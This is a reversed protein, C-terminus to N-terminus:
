AQVSDDPTGVQHLNAQVGLIDKYLDGCCVQGLSLYHEVCDAGHETLVAARGKLHLWDLDNVRKAVLFTLSKFQQERAPRSGILMYGSTQKNCHMHTLVSDGAHIQQTEMRHAMANM